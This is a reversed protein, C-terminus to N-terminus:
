APQPLVPPPLTGVATKRKQGPRAEMDTPDESAIEKALAEVVDDIANAFAADDLPKVAAEPRSKRHEGSGLAAPQPAPPPVTRAEFGFTDFMLRHSPPLNDFREIVASTSLFLEERRGGGLDRKLTLEGPASSRRRIERALPAVADVLMSALAAPREIQNLPKGFAVAQALRSRRSELDRMTDAVRKWIREATIVDEGSLTIVPGEAVGGRMVKRISPVAVEQSRVTLEIGDSPASASRRLTITTREPGVEVDTMFWGDLRTAALGEKRFVNGERPLRLSVHKTVANLRVAKSWLHDAPVDLDLVADLGNPATGKVQAHAKGEGLSARWRLRWVTGPLQRQSLLTEFVKPLLARQDAMQREVERLVADRRSVAEGRASELVARAASLARQAVKAAEPVEKDNVAGDMARGLQAALGDFRVHERTSERKAEEAREKALNLAGDIRLLAAAAETVDRLTDLFNEDLPFPTSDGYLYAM